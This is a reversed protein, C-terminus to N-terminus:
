RTRRGAGPFVPPLELLSPLAAEYRRRDVGVFGLSALHDTLWQADIVRQDAREASFVLGSLAAVAVKSADTVTRFKSDACFLGGLEVGLLGGVLEGEHWVEVSHAYGAAALERYTRAYEQTIWAGSRSPDACGALVGEFDRDFTVDFRRLSRRLSRSVRMGPYRLVAREAPAYWACVTEGEGDAEVEIVMPFMGRRYSALVSAASVRGGLLVIDTEDTLEQSVPVIREAWDGPDGDGRAM